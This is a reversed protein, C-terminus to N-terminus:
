KFHGTIQKLLEDSDSGRKELRRVFESQAVESNKLLLVISEVISSVISENKRRLNTKAINYLQLPQVLSVWHNLLKPTDTQESVFCLINEEGNVVASMLRRNGDIIKYISNYKEVILPHNDRYTSRGSFKALQYQTDKLIDKSSNLMLYERVESGSPELNRFDSLTSMNRNSFILKELSILQETWSMNQSTLIPAINKMRVDGSISSVLNWFDRTDLYGAHKTNPRMELDRDVIEWQDPRKLSPLLKRFEHQLYISGVKLRIPEVLHSYYNINM